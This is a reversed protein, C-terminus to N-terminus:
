DQSGGSSLDASEVLAALALLKSSLQLRSRKASELNISFRMKGNEVFFEAIGGLRAFEDIDSITLVSSGRLGTAIQAAQTAPLGSLYLLHCSQLSGDATVRSVSMGHGAVMRGKIARQLADGVAADGIVCATLSAASPLVEQPWETFKAFNYIFAAKLAVETVDQGLSTTARLLLLAALVAGLRLRRGFFRIRPM